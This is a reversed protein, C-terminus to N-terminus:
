QSRAIWHHAAEKKCVPARKKEEVQELVDDLEEQLCKLQAQSQAGEEVM